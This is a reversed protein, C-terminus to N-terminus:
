VVHVTEYMTLNKLWLAGLPCGCLSRTATITIIKLAQGRWENVTVNRLIVRFQRVFHVKPVDLDYKRIVCWVYNSYRSM